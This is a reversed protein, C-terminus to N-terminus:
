RVDRLIEDDKCFLINRQGCTECYAEGGANEMSVPFMKVSDADSAYAERSDRKGAEVTGPQHEHQHLEEFDPLTVNPWSFNTM